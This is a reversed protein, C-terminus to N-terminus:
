ALTYPLQWNSGEGTNAIIQMFWHEAIFASSVALRKAADPVFAQDKLEAM